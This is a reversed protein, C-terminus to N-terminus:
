GRCVGGLVGVLPAYTTMTPSLKWYLSPGGVCGCVCVCVCGCVCVWVCLWVWRTTLREYSHQMKNNKM